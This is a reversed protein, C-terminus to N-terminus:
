ATQFPVAHMERRRRAFSHVADSDDENGEEKNSSVETRILSRKRKKDVAALLRIQDGYASLMALAGQIKAGKQEAIPIGSDAEAEFVKEVLALLKELTSNLLVVKEATDLANCDEELKNLVDAFGGKKM